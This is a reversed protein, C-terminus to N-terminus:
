TICIHKTTSFSSRTSYTEKLNITNATKNWIMNNICMKYNVVFQLRLDMSPNTIAQIWVQFNYVFLMILVSHYALMRQIGM